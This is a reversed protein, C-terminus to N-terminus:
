MCVYMYIYIYIYIYYICICIHLLSNFWCLEYWHKRLFNKFFYNCEHRSMFVLKFCLATIGRLILIWVSCAFLKFGFNHPHPTSGKKLSARLYRGAPLIMSVAITESVIRARSNTTDCYLAKISWSCVLSLTM